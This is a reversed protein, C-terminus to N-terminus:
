TSTASCRTVCWSRCASFVLADAPPQPPLRGRAPAGRPRRPAAPQPQDILLGLIGKGTPLAGIAARETDTIGVDIFESLTRDPGIVGLAGYVPAGGPRVVVARDSALVDPLSLNQVVGVM